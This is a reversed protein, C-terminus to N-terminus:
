DIEFQVKLADIKQQISVLVHLLNNKVDGDDFRIFSIGYQELRSQRRNDYDYKYLHSNGDIEIALLIEHCYFDVIYDLLPVQRHFEVGLSKKKIKEWLIIESLTSNKRLYRAFEKLKPNYPIIPNRM